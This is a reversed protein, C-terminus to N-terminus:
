KRIYKRLLLWFFTTSAGAIFMVIVNNELSPEFVTYRYYACVAGMIFSLVALYAALMGGPATSKRFREWLLSVLYSASGAAIAPLLWIDLSLVM